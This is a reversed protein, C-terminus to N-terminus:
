FMEKKGTSILVNLTERACIDWSFEIARQKGRQILTQRLDEDTVIQIMGQAISEVSEPDVLLAAEGAIEKTGYRNSTLVPCGSSMAELPPSPCAEYLSPLVLATALQYFAPLEDRGIWGPRIIRDSIGLEDILKLDDECLWTHSGAVVLDCDIKTSAQAFARLLRAFNKPPYIQGVYLLYNEPLSYKERLQKLAASDAKESFREDVGLHISHAKRDDVGLYVRGMGGKGIVGEIQYHEIQQGILETARSNWGEVM